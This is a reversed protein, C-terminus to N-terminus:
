PWIGKVGLDWNTCDVYTSDNTGRIGLPFIINVTSTCTWPTGAASGNPRKCWSRGKYYLYATDDESWLTAPKFDPGTTGISRTTCAFNPYPGLQYKWVPPGTLITFENAAKTISFHSDSAKDSGPNALTVGHSLLGSTFASDFMPGFVVIYTYGLPADFFADLTTATAAFGPESCTACVLTGTTQSDSAKIVTFNAAVDTLGFAIQVQYHGSTKATSIANLQTQTCSGTTVYSISIGSLTETITLPANPEGGGPSSNTNGFDADTLVPAVGNIAINSFTGIGYQNATFYGSLASFGVNTPDKVPETGFGGTIYFPATIQTWNTGDPSTYPTYLGATRTLKFWVPTTVGIGSLYTNTKYTGSTHWASYVEYYLANHIEAIDFGVFSGNADQILIGSSPTFSQTNSPVVSLIKTQITFDGSLPESAYNYGFGTNYIRAGSGRIILTSFDVPSDVASFADAANVNATLTCQAKTVGCWTLAMMFVVTRIFKM